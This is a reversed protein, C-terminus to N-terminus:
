EEYKCDKFIEQTPEVWNGKEFETEIKIKAGKIAEDLEPFKRLCQLMKWACRGDHEKPFCKIRYSYYFDGRHFKGSIVEICQGKYAIKKAISMKDERTVM